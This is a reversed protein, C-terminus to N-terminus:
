YDTNKLNNCSDGSCIWVPFHRVSPMAALSLGASMTGRTATAAIAGIWYSGHNWHQKAAFGQRSCVSIDTQPSLSGPM